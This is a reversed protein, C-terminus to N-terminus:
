VNGIKTRVQDVWKELHEIRRELDGVRRILLEVDRLKLDLAYRAAKDSGNEM